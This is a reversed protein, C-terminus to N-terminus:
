QQDGNRTNDTPPNQYTTDATDSGSQGGNNMGSESGGNSMGSQDSGNTGSQTNETNTDGAEVGTTNESSCSALVGTAIFGVALINMTIKKM